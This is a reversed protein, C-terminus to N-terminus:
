RRDQGNPHGISAIASRHRAFQGTRGALLGQDPLLKGSVNELLQECSQNM